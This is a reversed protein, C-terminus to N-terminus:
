YEYAGIDYASGRPRSLSRFDKLVEFLKIGKDIAPSDARLRFDFAGANIVKPDSTWNAKILTNTADDRINIGKSAWVLNNVIRANRSGAYASSVEIGYTDSRFVTNNAVLADIAGLGVQIGAHNDYLINNYFKNNKGRSIIVAPDKYFIKRTVSYYGRGNRLFINNRFIWNNVSKNQQFHHIAYRGNDRFINGEVLGNNDRTYIGYQKMHHIENGIIECDGGNSIGMRGYRIENKFIRIHHAYLPGTDAAGLKVAYSVANTGDIVLGSLEIYAANYSLYIVFNGSTPKLIVQKEEGPFAAYRTRASSTGNRFTFGNDGHIMPETYLGKRIYLTDGSAMAKSARAFTRFPKSLTGTNNKDDGTTSVYYTKGTASAMVTMSTANGESNFPPENQSADNSIDNINAIDHTPMGQLNNPSESTQQLSQTSSKTQFNNGGCNQFLVIVLLTITMAFLNKSTKIVWKYHIKM